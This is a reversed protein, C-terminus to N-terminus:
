QRGRCLVDALSATKTQAETQVADDNDDDDDDDDHIQVIYFM